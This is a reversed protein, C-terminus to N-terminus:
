GVWDGERFKDGSFVEVTVTVVPFRAMIVTGCTAACKTPGAVSSGFMSTAGDRALVVRYRTHRQIGKRTGMAMATVAAGDRQIAVRATASPVLRPEGDPVTAGKVPSRVGVM